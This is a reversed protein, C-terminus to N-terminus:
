ANRPLFSWGWDEIKPTEQDSPCNEAVKKANRQLVPLQWDCKQPIEKSFPGNEIVYKKLTEKYSLSRLWKDELFAM